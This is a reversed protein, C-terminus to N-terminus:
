EERKSSHTMLRDSPYISVEFLIRMEKEKLGLGASGAATKFGSLKIMGKGTRDEKRFAKLLLSVGRVGRASLNGRARDLVALIGPPISPCAETDKASREQEVVVQGHRSMPRDAWAERPAYSADPGQRNGEKYPQKPGPTMKLADRTSRASAAADVGEPSESCSTSGCPLPVSARMIQDNGKLPEVSRYETSDNIRTGWVCELYNCFADDDDILASIDWHHERWASRTVRGGTLRAGPVTRHPPLPNMEHAFGRSCDFNKVIFLSVNGFM